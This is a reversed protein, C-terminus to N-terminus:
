CGDPVGKRTAPAPLDSAPALPLHLREAVDLLIRLRAALTEADALRERVADPSPIVALPDYPKHAM